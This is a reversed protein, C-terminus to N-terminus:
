ASTNVSFPDRFYDVQFIDKQLGGYALDGGLHSLVKCVPGLLGAPNCNPFGAVGSVTGHVSLHTIM